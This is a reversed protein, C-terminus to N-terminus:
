SLIQMVEDYFSNKRQSLRYPHGKWTFALLNKKDREATAAASFPRVENTSM